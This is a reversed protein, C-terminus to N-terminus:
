SSETVVPEVPVETPEELTVAVEESTVPEETAPVVEEMPLTEAAEEVMVPVVTVIFNSIAQPGVMMPAEESCSESSAQGSVFVITVQSEAGSVFTEEGPALTQSTVEEGNTITVNASVATCVTGECTECDPMTVYTIDYAGFLDVVSSITSIDGWVDTAVVNENEDATIKATTIWEGDEGGLTTVIIKDGSEIATLMSPDLALSSADIATELDSFGCVPEEEVGNDYGYSQTFTAYLTQNDVDVNTVEGKFTMEQIVATAPSVICIFAVMALVIASIYSITKM